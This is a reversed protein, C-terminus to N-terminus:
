KKAIIKPLQDIARPGSQIVASSRRRCISFQTLMNTTVKFTLDHEHPNHVDFSTSSTISVMNKQPLM